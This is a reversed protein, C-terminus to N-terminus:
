ISIPKPWGMSHSRRATGTARTAALHQIDLRVADSRANEAALTGQLSRGEGVYSLVGEASNGDLEVNVASLAGHQRRM